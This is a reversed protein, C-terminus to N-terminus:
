PLPFYRAFKIQVKIILINVEQPFSDEKHSPNRTRNPFMVQFCHQLDTVNQYRNYPDPDQAVSGYERSVSESGSGAEKTLPQCSELLFSTKEWLKKSIVKQNFYM